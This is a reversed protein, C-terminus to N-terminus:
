RAGLVKGVVHLSDLFARVAFSHGLWVFFSVWATIMWATSSKSEAGAAKDTLADAVLLTPTKGRMVSLLIPFLIDNRSGALRYLIGLPDQM